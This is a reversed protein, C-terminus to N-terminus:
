HQGYMWSCQTIWQLMSLRDIAMGKFLVTFPPAQLTGVEDINSNQYTHDQIHRTCTVRTVILECTCHGRWVCLVNWLVRGMWSKIREVEETMNGWSQHTPPPSLSIWNLALCEISLNDWFFFFFFASLLWSSEQPHGMVVYANMCVNSSVCLHLYILSAGRNTELGLFVM